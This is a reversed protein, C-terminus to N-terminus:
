VDIKIMKKMLLAGLIMNITGLAALFRGAREIFLIQIYDPNFFSLAVIIIFPLAILIFASIKGEASLAKVKGRFRFRERIIFAINETIEALNGGTEQQVIVSVAFYKLDSCDVRLVLNKLADSVSNGYNIEDLTERIESAIPDDCEDAALKMGSTFAHGARLARAIADLAEPFQKEFKEMRKKKKIRVYCIPVGGVMLAIFFSILIDRTFFTSAWFVVFFMVLILLVFLGIPSKIDAQQLVKDLKDIGPIKRLMRDIIPVESLNRTRLIDHGKKNYESSPMAKLRKKIKNRDPNRWTRIAYLVSETFFIVVIFMLSGVIFLDM